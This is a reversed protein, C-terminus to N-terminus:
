GGQQEVLRSEVEIGHALMKHIPCRKSIVFLKQREEPTLDGFVVINMTIQEKYEEIGACDKCDDAFIRDYELLLEVESLPVDHYQAYTHMVIATCSGLSTLLMGYPTLQRVDGVPHLVQDDPNHPDQALIEIEFQSNQRVTVKEAM